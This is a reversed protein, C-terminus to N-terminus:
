LDKEVIDLILILLEWNGVRGFTVLMIMIWPAFVLVCCCNLSSEGFTFNGSSVLPILRIEALQTHPLITPTVSLGQIVRVFLLTPVVTLNASQSVFHWPSRANM